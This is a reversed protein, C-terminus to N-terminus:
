ARLLGDSIIKRQIESTGEFITTLRADRWYREVAYETTYGNGGFIQLAQSTVREATESAVLKAQAADADAPEDADVLWAAHYWLQRAAEVEAAMTALMFRIAQQEAIPQGFQIRTQAYATADELAGRAVGVARAATQVRAVNLWRLSEKFGQGEDQGTDQLADAPLRLGDLELQWTTLGFYGIKEIVTGTIGRPFADREKEVLFIELGDARRDGSPERTRAMLHIFDAAKANGVWRKTGTVVWEDGDRVAACEVNALDSGARPESFAIAGIWSGSASRRLLEIRRDPDASACGTANGRAIISGVSLWARALEESVLCYEFVGLGLGGYEEEILIGFYGLDAIREQLARPIDERKPDLENAVPLVEDMAFTRAADQLARREATLYASATPALTVM